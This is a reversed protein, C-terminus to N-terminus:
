DRGGASALGHTIAGHSGGGGRQVKTLLGQGGSREQDQKKKEKLKSSEKRKQREEGGRGRVKWSLGQVGGLLKGLDHGGLPVLSSGESSTGLGTCTTAHPPSGM